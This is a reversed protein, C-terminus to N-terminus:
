VTPHKTYCNFGRCGFQVLEARKIDNIEGQESVDLDKVAAMTQEEFFSREQHPISSTWFQFTVRRKSLGFKRSLGRLERFDRWIHSFVLHINTVEPLLQTARMWQQVHNHMNIDRGHPHKCEEWSGLKRLDENTLGEAFNLEIHLEPIVDCISVHAAFTEAFVELARSVNFKFLIEPMVLTLVEETLETVQVIDKAFLTSKGGESVTDLFFSRVTDL